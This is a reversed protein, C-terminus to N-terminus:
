RGYTMKWFPSMERLRNVAQIVMDITYDIEAKTTFRGLSFRIASHALDDGIRLAKLVYSPDFSASSCASNSSIAINPMAMMLDKSEVYKFSMNTMHLLRKKRNGNVYVEPLASLISKELKDRLRSLRKMDSQMESKALRCAEGFGVIGSVNLTGSRMGREHGGGDIQPILEVKANNQRVFLAGVGKPGYIKHASFAALDIKDKQVDIPIKGAAQTADTFFIIDHKHAIEGIQPIPYITGIENHTYMVSILITRPTISDELQQLDINGEQDVPLYTVEFGQKELRKSTDLVARHEIISTIVHNGKSRYEEAVGKMALNVSETAGSTFIIEGSKASILGAVEDRANEVAEQADWGFSHNRSAANGFVRTFYPATKIFIREDVPATANYDLYIPFKITCHEKQIM